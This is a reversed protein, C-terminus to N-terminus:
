GEMGFGRKVGCVDRRAISKETGGQRRTPTRKEKVGSGRGKKRLTRVQKKIVSPKQSDQDM